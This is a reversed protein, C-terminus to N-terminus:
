CYLGPIRFEGGNNLSSRFSSPRFVLTLSLLTIPSVFKVIQPLVTTSPYLTKDSFKEYKKPDM